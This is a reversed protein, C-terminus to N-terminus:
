ARDGGGLRLLYPWRPLPKESQVCVGGGGSPALETKTVIGTLLDIVSVERGEVALDDPLGSLMVSNQENDPLMLAFLDDGARALRQHSGVPELRRVGFAAHLNAYVRAAPRPEYRRDIFGSRPFYGRDVDMFTDFCTVLDPQLLNVFVTEAVRCANAHDDMFADAPGEGALRVHALIGVDLEKGLRGLAELATWPNERRAVRFAFGDIAGRLRDAALLEALQEREATVFGHNIFHSFKAGDFKADEHMRLKSLYVRAGSRERLRALGVVAAAMDKRALVIEFASVLGQTEDLLPLMDDSPLGYSYVIFEHGVDRLLRMRARLRDDLLDQIPIRLKRAGMEWMALLPYDNRALKREFEQVGGTAAIEVLEAWPHRLDIAVPARANTRTHVAPLREGRAQLTEGEALEAGGTRVLYPVHGREHVDVLFYGFKGLDGRGFERAPEVRYFETYDHRLFSLAPLLYMATGGIVDYWFNHVHGCFMAEPRYKEILGLLWSRGPEDLNDYTGRENRDTVYPPYHICIFTRMAPAKALEREFWERQEQEAPLGSNILPANLAFFRCGNSEFRYYDPGFHERYQAISKATVTEAPMWDVPKDGIDHNGPLLYLPCKTPAAIAKFQEVATSFTPLEPVPHVMDGLHIIFAPQPDLQAISAFVYRARANARANAEYPSTSFGERENVHTDTIVAFQFLRRGLDPNDSVPARPNAM